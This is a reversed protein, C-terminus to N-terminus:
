KTFKLEAEIFEELDGDMVKEIQSTEYNTRHDKVMQYPHFVYSRIQAGWEASKTIKKSKALETEEKKLQLSHVKSALLQMAKERNQQQSRESQVAVVIGTPLHTIRIATERKNVNQGGPGSSRFTDIKLDETKMEVDKAEIEPLVELAAFSTHRQKTPSFPSIRVLRHVGAENKLYGYAYSGRVEITASKIGGEEGLSEHLITIEWEKSECYRNYMRFLMSAWDQSDRGGVGSSITLLANNKDYKESLFTQIELKDFKSELTRLKEAMENLIGEDNEKEALDAFEALNQTETEIDSWNKIEKELDSIEKQVNKAEEQNKWFDFNETQLKLEEIRKKKGAFDFITRWFAAGM